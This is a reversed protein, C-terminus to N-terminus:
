DDKPEAAMDLRLTARLSAPSDLYGHVRIAKPLVPYAPIRPQLGTVGLPVQQPASGVALVRASM